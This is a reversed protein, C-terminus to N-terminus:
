KHLMLHVDKVDAVGINQLKLSGKSKNKWYGSNYIHMLYYYLYQKDYGDAKIKIGINEPDYKKSVKGVTETSGKRQLWLDADEMKTSIKAINGLKISQNEVIKSASFSQYLEKLLTM